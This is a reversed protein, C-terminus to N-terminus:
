KLVNSFDGYAVADFMLHAIGNIDEKELKIYDKRGREYFYDLRDLPVSTGLYLPRSESYKTDLFPMQYPDVILINDKGRNEKLVRQCPIEKKIQFSRNYTTQIIRSGSGRLYSFVDKPVHRIEDFIVVDYGNYVHLLNNSLRYITEHTVHSSLCSSRAGNFSLPAETNDYWMRHLREQALQSFSRNESVHLISNNEELLLNCVLYTLLRSTGCRRTKCIIYSLDEPSDYWRHTKVLFEYYGKLTYEKSRFKHKTVDDMEWGMFKHSFVQSHLYIDGM